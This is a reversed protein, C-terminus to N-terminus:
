DIVELNEAERHGVLLLGDFFRAKHKTSPMDFPVTYTCMRGM